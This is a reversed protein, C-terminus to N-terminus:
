GGNPQPKEAHTALGLSAAREAARRVDRARRRRTYGIGWMVDRGEEVVPKDELRFAPYKATFTAVDEWTASAAPEGTWRILVQPVGRALRTRVAREPQPLVAGHHVAPLPPPADPPTGVWKKLLGVHFVDHLKANPPLELRVAVENILETVKYPGFFRPQLKGRPAKSLSAVPRHRLRLLVWDGVAFSVARHSKDYYRKQTAQAQELRHRVDDLFEAREEMSRAVAAVRTDGPEYSRICPPDRGYVVKFPTDRLSSQYATNYTYEAWPLWRLWDRPRDGTFCRLYMAIVRNAAETQGDSQPHFATTMHLKPGLLRMLERWFTSTFVPDRDSVMSQPIGHLRVIDSFFAQAVSEASYPHALPIFHCYKSFRDVVTLIVSKGRVKPLAEIFDLGIDTWVGTPVPLPMLLGAPQLHETKFRQCTACARVFDQVRRRMDPFHFDRRLRHLTRQVGEHGDDHVAALIEDLLPSAPPIYLRGDFTIMGDKLAWPAARDGAALEDRIAVLAPHVAQEQRLRDIYDFRPASIALVAGDPTDRRSLADAVVNQAGPKYEVVFDFGLLKGVWHHQPITALRQDLLYKLSYHDTRVTFRRGWLYPRWHRVAHVLGILEREYAALARHRPAVPRSFFAIPHKDQLLVAGFGHTSADCEVIFAQSFDPLALVPASTVATKLATFAATADATWTFGEKKLLSTLPAAITGYDQVFKRYYGALGLFARVARVSRPPPWEAVAQVKAPDMAVGTDSIVHGLYSISSAGFACKSRKVFLQHQQLVTLVARLHRLHDAWSSSYILIDDFFVLVFRRLFPRLVDNMLAQFTAPANCLGFPMVIFEYLGDHTRFATKAIDEPKMRVQHYGSRLDLKTFFKAGHLEDLLEDVVPIPYADKVTIANLARYDVCFRWTGDAKKVLLVPSSFASSSRRILGQDLMLACQRELEDKHTAPYRYPRVAVPQAGAHLTIGHDRSRPPPLGQPEAFVAAFSHLLEDLLSASATTSCNAPASTGQVCPWVIPRGQQLFSMTRRQFDWTVPGLTGLWQAGLVVDYGALPMVFLDTTFIEGHISFAVRPLVGPCAVREGNAVTATMRPRATIPLGTRQAAAESIFSHSSGSDLLASFISGGITVGVQLTDTFRVGAIASLSFCPSAATATGPEVQIAFAETDGLGDAAAANDDPAGDIEVGDLFFIRKCFRNHGRTYRENCNFCLNLRRREAMEEPTLRRQQGDARGPQAAAPPAPLALLPPPAPLAARPPPPAAPQGRPPARPPHPVPRDAEMLEVQRALSIAAALTDPGHIRVAHSLLPGLGGTFLQVRQEEDLRGARPLLAQFRSAYEDVTGTRRCETLEFLPAARLAPGFRLNLLDKFHGWSPTGEDDQLQVYWLQAVDDLHYSATRVREEPMTRHQRFYAECKNLFLLPDVTGDFRPFDWKKPRPSFESDRHGDTGHGDAAASSSATKDKMAAMDSKLTKMEATITKLM